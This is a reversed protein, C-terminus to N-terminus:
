GSSLKLCHEGTETNDADELNSIFYIILRRFLNRQRM